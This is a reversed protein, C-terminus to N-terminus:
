FKTIKNNIVNALCLPCSVCRPLFCRRSETARGDLACRVSIWSLSILNIESWFSVYRFHLYNM